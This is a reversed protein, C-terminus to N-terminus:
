RISCAEILVEAARQLIPLRAADDADHEVRHQEPTLGTTKDNDDDYHEAMEKM